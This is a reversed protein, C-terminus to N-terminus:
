RRWSRLRRTDRATTRRSSRLAPRPAAPDASPCCCTPCAPCWCRTTTWCRRTTSCRRLRRSRRRCRCRPWPRRPRRTCGSAPNGAAAKLSNLHQDITARTATREAAFIEGVAKSVERPGASSKTSVLYAELDAQFDAASPYRDSRSKALALDCMRVLAPPANPAADKLSPIEGKIIHTLIEVDTKKHWMRRKSVAEWLMVGVSFVDTRPDVEGALQEPPMYAPKGKLVGTRTELTSDLAKAIGFDVLKVQGDFTVFVNQPTADRHVISLPTGDFEQLTHASHLGSLTECLVRLHMPLTFAPNAQRIIRALTVGELYDM